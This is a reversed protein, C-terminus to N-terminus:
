SKKFARLVEATLILVFPIGLYLMFRYSYYISSMTVVSLLPALTYRFHSIEKNKEKIDILTLYCLALGFGGVNAWGMHAIALTLLNMKGTHYLNTPFVTGRLSFYVGVCSMAFYFLGALIFLKEDATKILALKILKIEGIQRRLLFLMLLTLFAPFLPTPLIELYYRSALLDLLFVWSIGILYIGLPWLKQRWVGISALAYGAANIGFFGFSFLVISVTQNTINASQIILEGSNVFLVDYRGQVVLVILGLLYVSNILGLGAIIQLKKRYISVVKITLIPQGM